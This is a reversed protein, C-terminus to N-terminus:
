VLLLEHCILAPMFNTTNSVITVGFLYNYLDTHKKSWQKGLTFFEKFKTQFTDPDIRKYIFEHKKEWADLIWYTNESRECIIVFSHSYMQDKEIKGIFFEGTYISVMINAKKKMMIDFRSLTELVKTELWGISRIKQLLMAEYKERIDNYFTLSAEGGFHLCAAGAATVCGDYAIEHKTQAFNLLLGLIPNSNKNISIAKKVKEEDLRMCIDAADKAIEKYHHKFDELVEETPTKVQM